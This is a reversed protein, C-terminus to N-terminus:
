GAPREAHFVSRRAFRQAALEELKAGGSQEVKWNMFLFRAANWIKNAISPGLLRDDSLVIDTRRRWQRWVSDCRM